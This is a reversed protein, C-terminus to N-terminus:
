DLNLYDQIHIFDKGKEKWFREVSETNLRDRMKWRFLILWSTSEKEEIFHLKM